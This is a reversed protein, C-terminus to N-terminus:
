KEEREKIRSGVERLVNKLVYQLAMKGDHVWKDLLYSKIYNVKEQDLNEDGAMSEFIEEIEQRTALYLQGKEEMINEFSNAIVELEPHYYYESDLALIKLGLDSLKEAVDRAIEIKKCLVDGNITEGNFNNIIFELLMKLNDDKESEHQTKLIDLLFDRTYGGRGMTIVKELLGAGAIMNALDEVSREEGTGNEGDQNSM